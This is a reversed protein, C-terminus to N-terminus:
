GGGDGEDGAGGEGPEGEGDDEAGNDGGSGNQDGQEGSDGGGPGGDDNGCAGAGTVSRGISVTFRSRHSQLKTVTTSSSFALGSSTPRLCRM